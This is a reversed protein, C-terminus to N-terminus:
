IKGLQMIYLNTHQNRVCTKRFQLSNMTFLFCEMTFLASEQHLILIPSESNKIMYKLRAMTRLINKIKQCNQAHHNKYFSNKYFFFPTTNLPKLLNTNLFNILKQREKKKGRRKLNIKILFMLCTFVDWFENRKLIRTVENKKFFIFPFVTSLTVSSSYGYKNNLIQGNRLKLYVM